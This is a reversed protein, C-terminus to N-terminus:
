NTPLTLHTYSVPLFAPDGDYYVKMLTDIVDRARVIQVTADGLSTDTVIGADRCLKVAPSQDDPVYFSRPGNPSMTLGVQAEGGDPTRVRAKATCDMYPLEAWDETVHLTTNCGMGTGIFLIKANLKVYQGYPGRKDFTSAGDGHGKVLEEADKGIAALSHTPHDSRFANDRRWFVDTIKGVRSPTETKDWVHQGLTSGARTVFTSTLTPMFVVGEDGVAELLADIVADPGGDVWGLSKLSSHVMLADGPEIGMKRLDAALSETTHGM